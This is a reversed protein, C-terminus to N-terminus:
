RNGSLMQIKLDVAQAQAANGTLTYAQSLAKLADLNGPQIELLKNLWQIADAPQGAQMLAQSLLALIEPDTAYHQQAETLYQLIQRIDGQRAILAKAAERLSLALNNVASTYGPNLQVAFRYDRAALDFQQLLFYANGRMYLAILSTPFIDLATNQYQLSSNLLQQRKAADKESLAQECLESGYACNIKSSQPSIKVDHAFLKRNSSWDTNRLVTKLSLLAIVTTAIGMKLYAQWSNGPTLGIWWSATLLCFGVSPLFLFREAMNTGVPFLLNSVISIGALYFLVSFRETKAKGSKFGRFVFAVLLLHFWLSAWVGVNAFTMIGIHRPYYDCTLPHPFLLLLIYKGLCFLVTALREQTSFHVWRNGDLKVFPNNMLDMPPDGFSWGVVSGRLILFVAAALLAPWLYRGIQRLAAGRFLWLAAPLIALFTLANEKGLMGALLSAAAAWALAMRGTDFARLLLYLAGLGGALAAIEDCSKINNVVETHIPHVVFILTALGATWQAKKETPQHRLLLLLTRHLLWATGAFFLVTFLHYPWPTAGLFQYLVAFFAVTLPRYRSGYVQTQQLYGAFADKTFIEKLGGIGQKTFVNESIVVKDDIVFGHSLSNAYLVFALAFLLVGQLRTNHFISWRFIGEPFVGESSVAPPVKTSKSPPAPQRQPKAM